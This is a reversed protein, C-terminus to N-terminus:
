KSAHTTKSKVSEGGSCTKAQLAYGWFMYILICVAISTGVLRCLDATLILSSLDDLTRSTRLALGNAVIILINWLITSILMSMVLTIHLKGTLENSKM